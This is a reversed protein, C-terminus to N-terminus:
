KGAIAKEDRKRGAEVEKRGKEIQAKRFDEPTATSMKKQGQAKKIQQDVARTEDSTEGQVPMAKTARVAKKMQKKTPEDEERLGLAEAMLAGIRKYETHALDMAPDQGTEAKERKEKDDNNNTAMDAAKQAMKKKLVNKAVTKLILPIAEDVRYGLAEAMLIGMRKYETHSDERPPRSPKTPPLKMSEPTEMPKEGRPLKSLDTTRARTGKLPDKKGRYFENIVELYKM